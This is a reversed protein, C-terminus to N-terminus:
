RLQRASDARVNAAAISNVANIFRAPSAYDGYYAQYLESLSADTPVNFDSQEPPPSDLFFRRINRRIAERTIWKHDRTVGVTQRRLWVLDRESSFPSM